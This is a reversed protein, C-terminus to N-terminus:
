RACADVSYVKKWDIKHNRIRSYLAPDDNKLREAYKGDPFFRVHESLFMLDQDISNDLQQRASGQCGADLYKKIDMLASLGADIKEAQIFQIEEGHSRNNLVNAIFFGALASFLISSVFYITKMLIM